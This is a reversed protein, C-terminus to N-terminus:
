KPKLNKNKEYAIGLNYYSDADDPYINALYLFQQLAEENYGNDLLLTALRRRAQLNTSDERLIQQLEEIEGLIDM